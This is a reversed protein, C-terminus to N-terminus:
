FGKETFLREMFSPNKSYGEKPIRNCSIEFYRRHCLTGPFITLLIFPFIKVSFMMKEDEVPGGSYFRRFKEINRASPPSHLYLKYDEVSENRKRATKPVISFTELGMFDKHNNSPKLLIKSPPHFNRRSEEFDVIRPRSKSKVFTMLFEENEKLRRAEIKAQIPKLLKQTFHRLDIRGIFRKTEPTRDRPSQSKREIKQLTNLL